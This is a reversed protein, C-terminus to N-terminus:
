ARGSPAATESRRSSWAGQLSAALGAGSRRRTTNWSVMDDLLSYAAPVVFLTFATSVAMGGVLALAMPRQLEAGPGIALAPPLAGAITALSTMLIPRLRVPCAELLAEHREVGKERIQNTFDVLLISNKKAIGMLLIMGLMSYVNLSQGSIWLALLAGSISFPLALLVTFPHTFANFQTALVMYAVILGMVFAFLLSSFSEQFAQSSGSPIARYGDPLAETAIKVSEQLAKAQSAGPAVNAFVTIARERDKRTIAQLTPRQEIDVLDGLRVLQGKGTRVLLRDIDEPRQRQTALLRVRIDFRRGKDKFKGVRLGGIAANVTEGIDAMSIGLDAAKNRDPVVQVEPMGVQYDSDVDTVLGSARMREMIDKSSQALTDWDRGRVAIEVPFGRSASFGQQSPDQLVVRAGPIANGARRAVDMFQQQTLRRGAQEDVPREHPDKLSVFIMGTNVEGGGFGGLFGFFRRVEGRSQLFGELQRFVRDTADMSSGVPTQFRLMFASTDAAPVFESRLQNIILLSVGFFVTAGALVAVRHHMAPVLARKYSAALRAFLRDVAHGLKSQREGVELFRSCRMPALTLAELLSLLVAVSITVGFQFFFKGIIGKMFAVPLFIAVIALTAAAAAFTIERAGVSAARVKGLGEERHRYINELVMIADDVVIGVVLTLGLVTFTNLTFNLFYMVIFTGLISTPIALLVNITTSWSGLFLWCVIGTLVSALVLTFLIEHIADEIFETSDFNVFLSLGEPLQARVQDLKAKVDQGVQVANAGRLKKIGFGVAVQGMSRALRRRDELGDEVVAVDKLRVPAGDKYTVVLQRFGEVDVAEGEARVNMEREATEIRGAPVELHERAIAENVDLVTLGMAELRPADYWVRISRERYGGLMVEGVGQITQFQPRLVNRVYDALYTPPRNGALALWMVPQDEPNTKTIIPPDMERPLRRAAQAVRTQVDQLAADISRNLEFEITISASGQRSTSNIQKVGEVSTVADEIFDVVDTEMIEPSAGEYTVSVNVIPFDVDPNQSVGLGRVVGGAGRFAVIGFGILGLMLMWAFVHNRISIDALTSGTAIQKPDEEEQPGHPPRPSDTM